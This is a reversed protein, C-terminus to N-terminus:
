CTQKCDTQLGERSGCATTRADDGRLNPSGGFRRARWARKYAAMKEPAHSAQWKKARADSRAQFAEWDVFARLGADLRGKLRLASDLRIVGSINGLVGTSRRWRKYALHRRYIEANNLRRLKVHFM